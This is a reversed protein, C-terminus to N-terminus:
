FEIIRDIDISANYGMTVLLKVISSIRVYSPELIHLNGVIVYQHARM